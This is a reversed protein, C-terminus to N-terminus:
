FSWHLSVGLSLRWPLVGRGDWGETQREEDELRDRGGKEGERGRGKGKGGQADKMGEEPETELGGWVGQGLLELVDSGRQKGLSWLM